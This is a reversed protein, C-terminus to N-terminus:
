PILVKVAKEKKKGVFKNTDEITARVVGTLNNEAEVVIPFFGKSSPQNVIPKKEYYGVVVTIHSRTAILSGIPLIERVKSWDLKEDSLSAWDFSKTERMGWIKEASEKAKKVGVASALSVCDFTLVTNDDNLTVDRNIGALGPKVDRTLGYIAGILRNAERIYDQEAVGLGLPNGELTCDSKKKGTLCGNLPLAVNMGELAPGYKEIGPSHQLLQVGDKDQWIPALNEIVLRGDPSYTCESAILAAQDGRHIAAIRGKVADPTNGEVRVCNRVPRKIGQCGDRSKTGILKGFFWSESATSSNTAFLEQNERKAECPFSHGSTDAGALSAAKIRNLIEASRCRVKWDIWEPVKGNSLGLVGIGNKKFPSALERDIVNSYRNDCFAGRSPQRPSTSTTPIPAVSFTSSRCSWLSRLYIECKTDPEVKVSAWGTPCSVYVRRSTSTSSNRLCLVLRTDAMGWGNPCSPSFIQRQIRAGLWTTQDCLAQSPATPFRTPPSEGNFSRLSESELAEFDGEAVKAEAAPIPGELLLGVLLLLM